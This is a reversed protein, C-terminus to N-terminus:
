NNSCLVTGLIYKLFRNVFFIFYITYFM